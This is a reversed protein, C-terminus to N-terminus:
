RYMREFFRAFMGNRALPLQTQPQAPGAAQNVPVPGAVARGFSEPGDTFATQQPAIAPNSQPGWYGWPSRGFFMSPRRTMGGVGEGGIRGGTSEDFFRSGGAYMAGPLEGVPATRQFWPKRVMGAFGQSPQPQLGEYESFLMRAM